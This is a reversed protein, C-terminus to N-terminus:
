VKKAESPKYPELGELPLVEWEDNSVPEYHEGDKYSIVTDQLVSIAPIHYLMSKYMRDLTFVKEEDTMAAAPQNPFTDLGKFSGGTLPYEGNNEEYVWMQQDKNRLAFILIAVEGFRDIPSMWDRLQIGEQWNDPLKIM